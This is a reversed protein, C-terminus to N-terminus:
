PSETSIRRERRNAVRKALSRPATNPDLRTLNAAEQPDHPRPDRNPNGPLRLGTAALSGILEQPHVAREGALAEVVLGVPVHHAHELEHPVQIRALPRAEVERPELAVELAHKHAGGSGVSCSDMELV